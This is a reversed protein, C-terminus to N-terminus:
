LNVRDHNISHNKNKVMWDHGDFNMCEFYFFHKICSITKKNATCILPFIVLIMYDIIKYWTCLLIIFHFLTDSSMVSRKRKFYIFLNELLYWVSSFLEMWFSPAKLLTSICFFIIRFKYWGTYIPQGM